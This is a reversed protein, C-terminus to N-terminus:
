IRRRSAVFAMGFCGAILAYASPEPVARLQYGTFRIGSQSSQIILDQTVADATFTGIAYEGAQLINSDTSAADGILTMTRTETDAMAYWAQFVYDQGITLGTFTDVTFASGSGQNLSFDVYDLFSQYGAQDAATGGTVTDAWADTNYNNNLIAGTSTFTTGAFTLTPTAAVQQTSTLNVAEVITGTTLVESVNSTIDYDEWTITAANASSFAACAVLSSLLLKTNKM